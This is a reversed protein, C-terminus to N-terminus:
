GRSEGRGEPSLKPREPASLEETLKGVGCGIGPRTTVDSAAAAM